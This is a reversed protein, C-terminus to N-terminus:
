IMFAKWRIRM